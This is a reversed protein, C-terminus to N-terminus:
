NKMGRQYVVLVLLHNVVGSFHFQQINIGIDVHKGYVLIDSAYLTWHLVISNNQM